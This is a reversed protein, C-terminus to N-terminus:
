IRLRWMKLVSDYMLDTRKGFPSTNTEHGRVAPPLDVMYAAHTTYQVLAADPYSLKGPRLTADSASADAHGASLSCGETGQVVDLQM